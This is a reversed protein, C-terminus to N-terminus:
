IAACHLALAVVTGYDLSSPCLNQGDAATVVTTFGTKAIEINQRM